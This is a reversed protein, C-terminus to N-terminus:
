QNGTECYNRESIARREWAPGHTFVDEWVTEVSPEPDALAFKVAQSIELKAEQEVARLEEMLGPENSTVWKELITIPEHEWARKTEEKSRYVETDGIYHGSLRYTTAEIFVPGSEEFIKERLRRTTEYVELVDNGNIKVTEIGYAKVLDSIERAAITKRTDTSIAYQNNECIFIIPLKWAAVMNLSEHFGGQCVAGDGFFCVVVNKQKKMSLALGAGVSIPLGGGVIGNACLVGRSGGIHMSGGKGKCYGHARGLLEAMMYRPDLGKAICHGHGRHHSLIYDDEALAAGVGAAIGEEGIYLHASGRVVGMQYLDQIAEEFFRITKMTRYISCIIESPSKGGM